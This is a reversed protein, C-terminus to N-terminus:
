ICNSEIRKKKQIHTPQSQHFQTTRVEFHIKGFENLLPVDKLRPLEMVDIWNILKCVWFYVCATFVVRHALRIETRLEDTRGHAHSTSIIVFMSPVSSHLSAPARLKCWQVNSFQTKRVARLLRGNWRSRSHTPFFGFEVDALNTHSNWIVDDGIQWRENSYDSIKM